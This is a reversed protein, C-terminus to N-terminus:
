ADLDQKLNNKFWNWVGDPNDGDYKGNPYFEKKFKSFLDETFLEEVKVGENTKKSELTSATTFTNGVYYRVASWLDISITKGDIKTAKAFKDRNAWEVEKDVNGDSFTIQM